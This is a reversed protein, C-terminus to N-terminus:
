LETQIPMQPYQSSSLHTLPAAQSSWTVQIDQRLVKSKMKVWLLQYCVGKTGGVQKQVPQKFSLEGTLKSRGTIFLVQKPAWFFFVHFPLPTFSLSHSSFPTKFIHDSSMSDELHAASKQWLWPWPLPLVARPLQPFLVQSTLPSAAPILGDLLRSVM